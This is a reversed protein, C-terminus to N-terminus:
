FLSLRNGSIKAEHDLLFQKNKLGGSYGTLNGDSGIVRHCPIIIAIPNQGIAHGAARISKEDGLRRALELYSITEGYPIKSLIDWTRLQFTTGSPFLPLEFTKIKGEFYEDLQIACQKAVFPVHLNNEKNENVFSIGNVYKESVKIELWGVPSQHYLFYQASM